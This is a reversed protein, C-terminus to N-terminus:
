TRTVFRRNLIAIILFSSGVLNINMIDLSVGDSKPAGDTIGNSIEFVIPSVYEASFGESDTVVVKLLYEGDFVSTTAWVVKTNELGSIITIWNNGGKVFYQVSYSLSHTPLNDPSETWEIVEDGTLIEETPSIIEPIKLTHETLHVVFTEDIIVNSVFGLEDRAEIRLNVSSQNM